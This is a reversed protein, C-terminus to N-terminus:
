SALVKIKRPKAEEAKPLVVELVGDRYSASIREANITTPVVFSRTFSGYYREVRHASGDNVEKEQKKEGRLVLTGNEMKIDIDNRDVGPLEARFVIRDGEEVIDVPPLWAGVGELPTFLGADHSLFRSLRDQTAFMDRFPDWNSFKILNMTDLRRLIM